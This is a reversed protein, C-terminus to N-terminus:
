EGERMVFQTPGSYVPGLDAPRVRPRHGGSLIPNEASNIESYM